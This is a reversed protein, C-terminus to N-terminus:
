LFSPKDIQRRSACDRENTGFLHSIINESREFHHQGETLHHQAQPVFSFDENRLALIKPNTPYFQLEYIVAFGHIFDAAQRRYPILVFHQIYDIRLFICALAHHWVGEAIVYEGATLNCALGESQISFLLDRSKSKESNVWCNLVNSLILQILQETYKSRM